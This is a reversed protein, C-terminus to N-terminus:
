RAVYGATGARSAEGKGGSQDASGNAKVSGQRSEGPMLADALLDASKFAYFIGEGTIPDCFGAADGILAWGDGTAQLGKWTALDLTPIKAGFFSVHDSEPM